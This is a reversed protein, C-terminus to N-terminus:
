ENAYLWFVAARETPAKNGAPDDIAGVDAFPARMAWWGDGPLSVAFTGNADTKVVVDTPPWAMDDEPADVHVVDVRSFPVPMGDNLLVGRFVAGARLGYPQTLPVIEIPLGLIADWGPMDASHGAVVTKAYQRMIRGRTTDWVPASTAYFVQDAGGAMDIGATFRPVGGATEPESKSVKGALSVMRGDQFVGFDAPGPNVVADAEGRVTLNLDFAIATPDGGTVVDRSPLIEQLILNPEAQGHTPAAALGLGVTLALLSTRITM